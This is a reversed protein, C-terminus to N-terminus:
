LEPPTATFRALVAARVTQVQPEVVIPEPEGDAGGRAAAAMPAFGYGPDQTSEDSLSVLGTLRTGLADAYGRAREVARLAAERAARAHVESDERLAWDPGHVSTREQDALRPLLEALVTFDAVTLKLVATGRYAAVDNRKGYRIEPTVSLGGTEVREVADGYSRVLALCQENREALRDLADRRERERAQVHVTVRAIEPEAELVAEGRVSIVPADSM